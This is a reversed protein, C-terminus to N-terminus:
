RAGRGGLVAAITQFMLYADLWISWNEIYASDKEKQAEVDGDSRASVQWLGTIGPMVSARKDQFPADFTNLHYAPFPRPGVLSIDGRIVNWLQPLEDISSSRMFQGIVPLIRPDNRLKFYRQWEARAVADTALLRDLRVDADQYMTRLKFIPLARKNLGVRTQTYIVPGPDFWKILLAAVAVVPAALIAAPIALALDFARKIMLNRGAGAFDKVERSAAGGLDRSPQWIRRGDALSDLVLARFTVRAELLAPQMVSLDRSSAFVAIEACRGLPTAFSDLQPVPFTDGMSGPVTDTVIVGTPNLGLEPELLLKTCLARVDAAPGVCITPAGWLKWKTLLHRLMLDTYFGLLLLIAAFGVVAIAVAMFREAPLLAILLAGAALFFGITRLRFREFPSPGSGSYLGLGAFCALLMGALALTSVHRVPGALATAMTTSLWLAASVLLIDAIVLSGIVASRRHLRLRTSLPPSRVPGSRTSVRFADM